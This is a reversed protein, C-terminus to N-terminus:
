RIEQEGAQKLALNQFYFYQSDLNIHTRDHSGAECISKSPNLICQFLVRCSKYKCYPVKKKHVSHKLVGGFYAMYELGFVNNCDISTSGFKRPHKKKSKDRILGSCQQSFKLDQKNTWVHLYYASSEKRQMLFIQSSHHTFKHAHVPIISCVPSSKQLFHMLQFLVTYVLEPM